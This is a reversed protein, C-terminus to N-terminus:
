KPDNSPSEQTSDLDSVEVAKLKKFSEQLLTEEAVRKKTPEEVDKDPKFLTQFKKYEREFIPRVKDYTMGRLHEMKYGAMNKLYIIMNKRAQAIFVLKRKLSQYTKARELDDKEQKERATVKEVEEDHLRQAMQEDLLKAKKAKMKILTQAMTMTVEEDHFMTPEVANVDKTAASVDEQTIRGQLKVDMDAVEEQTEMVTDAFSEVKKVRKKLKIIELAQTHKDKELEVVKQSLTAYTELLTNLLPISSKSTETPQEQTLSLPSAHPTPTPDQPPPSPAPTPSPPTPATPVEVEKDEKAAHPQVFMLAFLPTKVRSFGKGVRRMNTFVKQTLAPFTYKTNHYTLDDVQANIVVKLFRPYMLFKSPTDVNRVMSDFIYKSFNFNRSTALYIVISAMSCSFENRALETFIEENPLCEVGDVDDLHLDQRIVDETVVVKKKKITASAWCQKICSVYITPNVVLAYQIAHANLFDVIKDFGSSADSKSLYAVMNHTDVFTLPAM